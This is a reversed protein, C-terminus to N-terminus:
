HWLWGELLVAGAKNLRYSPPYPPDMGNGLTDTWFHVYYRLQLEFKSKVIGCELAKVMVGYPCGDGGGGMSNISNAELAKFAAESDMTKPWVSMAQTDINKYGM